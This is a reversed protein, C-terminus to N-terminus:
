AEARKANVSTWIDCIRSSYDEDSLFVEHGKLGPDIPRNPAPGSFYRPLVHTHLHPVVNGLVNYNMKDAEFLTSLAQGVVALDDFYAARESRTMEFPEIVHRNAILVCYGKVFQNKTLYLYTSPLAGIFLLHEDERKGLRILDCVPCAEGSILRDWNASKWNKTM